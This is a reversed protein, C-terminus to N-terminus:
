PKGFRYRMGIGLRTGLSLSLTTRRGLQYELGLQPYIELGSRVVFDYIYAGRSLIEDRDTSPHYLRDAYKETINIPLLGSAGLTARFRRRRWFMYEATISAFFLSGLDQDYRLYIDPSNSFLSNSENLSGKIIDNSVYSLGFGLRIGNSFRRSVGAHISTFWSQGLSYNAENNRYLTLPSGDFEPMFVSAGPILETSYQSVTNFNGMPAAFVHLDVEWRPGSSHQQRWPTNERDYSYDVGKFAESPLITPVALGAQLRESQRTRFDTLETTILSVELPAAAFNVRATSSARVSNTGTASSTATELPNAGPTASNTSAETADTLSPTEVAEYGGTMEAPLSSSEQGVSATTAQPGLSTANAYTAPGQSTALQQDLMATEAARTTATEIQTARTTQNNGVEAESVVTTPSPSTVPDLLYTAAEESSPRDLHDVINTPASAKQEAIVESERALVWSGIGVVVLGIPLLGSWWIGPGIAGAGSGSGAGASGSGGDSSPGAPPQNLQEQINAWQGPPPEFHRVQESSERLQRELKDM